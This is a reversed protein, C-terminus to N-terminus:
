IHPYTGDLPSGLSNLLCLSTKMGGVLWSMFALSGVFDKGWKLLSKRVKKERRIKNFQMVLIALYLVAYM